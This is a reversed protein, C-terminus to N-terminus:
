ALKVRAFAEELVPMGDLEMRAIFGVQNTAAYLEVLRQVTMSLSDAIWYHSFDGLIGVYLGTTFTNSMYESEIVPIGLLRDPEDAERSPRWLYQGEGDKLKAVQEVADRHFIWRARGSQRYPAKLQYKCAILGDFRIETTTNGTSVDRGTSIGNGSATMVGLPQNAGSGTLFAKEETVGFKYALRDRVLDEAAIASTRLLKNSVLLREANPWPHLERKGTTMATDASGTALESTWTGDAPDADLAPAGLSDANTVAFVTALQRIVLMDDVAKILRAVFQEGPVMSGGATDVDAQLARQEDDTLRSFDFTRQATRLYLRFSRLYDDSCRYGGTIPIVREEARARTGEVTFRTQPLSYRLESPKSELPEPDPKTSRAEPIDGGGAGGTNPNGASQLKDLEREVELQKEWRRIEDGLKAADAFQKDYQEQEESTIDRKEGEAKELIKRADQILKVRQDRLRQLEEFTM